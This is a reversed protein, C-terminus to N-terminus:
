AGRASPGQMAEVARLRQKLARAAMAYGGDAGDVFHVQRGMREFVVCTVLARDTVHVGYALRGSRYEEELYTTLEARQAATGAIVMRLTDDYKRFDSTAVLKEIYHDWRVGSATEVENQVLVKLAINRWWIDFLYKLREWWNRETRIKTEGRLRKPSYSPDLTDPTLPRYEDSSGYVAEIAKIATRYVSRDYAADGTTATVLLTVTEGHQSPIDRWRCELGTFDADPEADTEAIRYRPATADGKVLTDAHALGGGDFIAQAYEDAVQVKAVRVDYGDARVDAVPVLGLRLDLDFEDRAMRQTGLLAESAREALEPPLLMTAGDGGFAFPLDTDPVLNLLAIISSAGVLNVARYRGARIAQTSGRVDTIAIQWDDPVPVYTDPDTISLFSSQAELAEYSNDMVPRRMPSRIFRSICM